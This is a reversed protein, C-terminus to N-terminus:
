DKYKDVLYGAHSKIYEINELFEKKFEEPMTNVLMDSLYLTVYGILDFSGDIKASYKGPSIEQLDWCNSIRDFKREINAAAGRLEGRKKWSDGYTIGKAMLLYPIFSSIIFLGAPDNGYDYETDVPIACNIKVNDGEYTVFFFEKLEELKSFPSKEYIEKPLYVTTEIKSM